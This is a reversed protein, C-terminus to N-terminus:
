VLNFCLIDNFDVTYRHNVKIDAYFRAVRYLARYHFPFRTLIQQLGTICMCICEQYATKLEQPVNECDIIKLLFNQVRDYHFDEHAKIFPKNKLENFYSLLKNYDINITKRISKLTIAYIRYVIEFTILQQSSSSKSKIDFKKTYTLDSAHLYDLSKMYFNIIKFLDGNQKENIKGFMYQHLWDEKKDEEDSDSDRSTSESTLSIVSPIISEQTSESMNQLATSKLDCKDAYEYAELALNLFKRSKEKFLDIFKDKEVFFNFVENMKIQRSFYSNLQYLFSGYELSLKYDFEILDFAKRYCNIAFNVKEMLTTAENVTKIRTYKSVYDQLVLESRSLALGAWSDFRDITHILDRIYYYTANTFDPIRNYYDGLLYFIENQYTSKTSIVLSQINEKFSEFDDDQVFMLFNEFSIECEIKYEDNKELLKVIIMLFDHFESPISLQKISDYQPLESPKFFKYLDISNELSYEIKNTSHNSLYKVRSKKYNFVCYFCQELQEHCLECDECKSSKQSNSNSL